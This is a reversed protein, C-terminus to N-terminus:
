RLYAARRACILLMGAALTLIAGLVHFLHTGTGGAAPLEVGLPSNPVTIVCSVHGDEYQVTQLWSVKEGHIIM